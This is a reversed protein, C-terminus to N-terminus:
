LHYVIRYRYSRGIDTQSGSKLFITAQVNLTKVLNFDFSKFFYETVFKNSKDELNIDQGFPVIVWINRFVNHKSWDSVPVTSDLPIDGRTPDFPSKFDQSADVPQTETFVGAAGGATAPDTVVGGTAIPEATEPAVIGFLDALLKRPIDIMSTLIFSQLVKSDDISQKLDPIILKYADFMKQTEKRISTANFEENSMASIKRKSYQFGTGFGYGMMVSQMFM